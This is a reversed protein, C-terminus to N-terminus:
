DSVRCYSFLVCRQPCLVLLRYLSVCWFQVLVRGGLGKVRGLLPHEVVHALLLLEQSLWMCAVGPCAVPATCKCNGGLSAFVSSEFYCGWTGTMIPPSRLSGWDGIEIGVVRWKFIETLRCREGVNSVGIRGCEYM